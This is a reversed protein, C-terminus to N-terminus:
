DDSKKLLWWDAFSSNPVKDRSGFETSTALKCLGPVDFHILRRSLDIRNVYSVFANGQTSMKWSNSRVGHVYEHAYGCRIEEYLLAAYSFHRLMWAPVNPCLSAAESETLDIEPGTLVRSALSHDVSQVYERLHQADKANGLHGILLPISITTMCLRTGAYRVLLEVFRQKDKGKGPWLEAALANLVGCLIMAAEAYGAEEIDGNALRTAILVKRAVWRARWNEDVDSSM